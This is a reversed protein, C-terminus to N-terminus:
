TRRPPPGSNGRPRGGRSGGGGRHDSRRHNEMNSSIIAELSDAWTPIKPHRNGSEAEGELEAALSSDVQNEIDDVPAVAERRPERAPRQRGERGSRGERGESSRERGESSRGERGESLRERGESSRERRSREPRAEVDLEDSLAIPERVPRDPRNERPERVERPGRERERPERPERPERTARPERFESASDAAPSAAGETREGRGRGRRRRRNSRRQPLPADPDVDADIDLEDVVGFSAPEEWDNTASPELDSEWAEPEDDIPAVDKARAPRDIDSESRDSREGDRRGRRRRRRRRGPEREEDAEVESPPTFTDAQDDLTPAEVIPEDDWDSVDDVMRPAPKDWSLEQRPADGFLEELASTKPPKTPAHSRPAPESERPAPKTFTSGLADTEAPASSITEPAPEPSSIGFFSTLTDWSSKRKGKRGTDPPVEAVPEPTPEPPPPPPEVPAPAASRPTPKDTEKPQAPEGIPADMGPAGLKNALSKWHDGM